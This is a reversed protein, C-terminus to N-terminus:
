GVQSGHIICKSDQKPCVAKVQRFNFMVIILQMTLFGTKLTESVLHSVSQVTCLPVLYMYINSIKSISVPPIRISLSGLFPCLYALTTSCNILTKTKREHLNKDEKHPTENLGKDHVLATNCFVRDEPNGVLDSM